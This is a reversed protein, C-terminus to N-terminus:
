KEEETLIILKKHIISLSGHIEKEIFKLYSLTSKFFAGKALFRLIPM